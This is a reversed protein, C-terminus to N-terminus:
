WAIYVLVGQLVGLNKEGRVLVTQSIEQRIIRAIRLQRRSDNQCAIMMISMYLILKDNKLQYLTTHYPVVVFPFMAAMEAQYYSLLFIAEQDNPLDNESEAHPVPVPLPTPNPSPPLTVQLSTAATSLLQSVSDM